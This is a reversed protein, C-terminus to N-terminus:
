RDQVKPAVLKPYCAYSIKVVCTHCMTALCPFGMNNLHCQVCPTKSKTIRYVKGNITVLQGPKWM